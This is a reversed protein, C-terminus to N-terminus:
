PLRLTPTIKIQDGLNEIPLPLNGATPFKEAAYIKGSTAGVLLWGHVVGGDVAGTFTFTKQACVATSPDGGTVTWDAPVLAIQTYGGGTVETYFAATDGAAPTTASSYLRLELNEAAVKNCILSLIRVEGENPILVAM